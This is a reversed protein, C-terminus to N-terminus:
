QPHPSSKEPIYQHALQAQMLAEKTGPLLNYSGIEAWSCYELMRHSEPERLWPEGSWPVIYFLVLYRRAEGERIYTNVQVHIPKTSFGVHIGLEENLERALAETPQEGDEIKGGPCEWFGDHRQCLLLGYGPKILLGAVVPIIM